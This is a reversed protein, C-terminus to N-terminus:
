WCTHNQVMHGPRVFLTEIHKVTLEIVALFRATLRLFALIKVTLRLFISVTFFDLWM